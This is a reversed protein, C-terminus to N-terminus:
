RKDGETPPPPLPREKRQQYLEAALAAYTDDCSIEDATMAPWCEAWTKDRLGPSEYRAHDKCVGACQGADHEKSLGRAERAWQIVVVDPGVAIVQGIHTLMESWVDGVQPEDAHKAANVVCRRPMQPAKEIM